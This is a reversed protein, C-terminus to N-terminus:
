DEKKGFEEHITFHGIAGFDDKIFSNSNELQKKMRNSINETTGDCYHIELEIDDMLSELGNKLVAMNCMEDKEDLLKRQALSLKDLVNDKIKQIAVGDVVGSNVRKIAENLLENSASIVEKIYEPQYYYENAIYLKEDNPLIIFSCIAENELLKAFSKKEEDNCVLSISNTLYNCIAFLQSLEVGDIYQTFLSNIPFNIGYPGLEQLIFSPTYVMLRDYVRSRYTVYQKPIQVNEGSADFDIDISVEEGSLVDFCLPLMDMDNGYKDSLYILVSGENRTIRQIYLEKIEEELRKCIQDLM